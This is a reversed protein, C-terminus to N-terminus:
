DLKIKVKSKGTSSSPPEGDDDDDNTVEEIDDQKEDDDENEDRESIKKLEDIATDVLVRMGKSFEKSAESGHKRFEVPLLSELAKGTEELARRQHYFFKEMPKDMSEETETLGQDNVQVEIDRENDSM